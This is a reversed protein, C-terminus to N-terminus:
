KLPNGFLSVNTISFPIELKQVDEYLEVKISGKAPFQGEYYMGMTCGDGMESNTYRQANLSKGSADLIQIDKITACAISFKLNMEQSGENQKISEITVDMSSGRAGEKIDKIGTDVWNSGSASSAYVFGSLEKIGKVSADPLALSVDWLVSSKNQSLQLYTTERNWEDTQMLDDGNDAVAKTVVARDASLIAGQLEGMLSLRFSQDNGFMNYDPDSLNSLTTRVIKISNFNGGQYNEVKEETKVPEEVTLGLTAIMADYQGLADAAEKTYDFLTQFKGKSTARVPGKEGFLIENMEFGSPPGKQLDTGAIAQERWWADDAMLKDMADLFKQGEFTIRLLGSKEKKFNNTKDIKGPLQFSIETKMTGLFAGMMPKIQQFQAKQTAVFKDIDENSLDSKKASKKIDKSEGNLELILNNQTDTYYNISDMMSINKFRVKTIDKFYATGKFYNKGDDLKKYEIDKWTDIGSSNKLVDKALSTGANPQNMDMMPTSKVEVAVKGSGDPNVVYDLKTEYCGLYLVGITAVILNMFWKTKM